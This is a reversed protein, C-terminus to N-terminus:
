LSSIYLLIKPYLSYSRSIDISLLQKIYTLWNRYFLDVISGHAKDRLGQAMKLRPVKFSIKEEDVM